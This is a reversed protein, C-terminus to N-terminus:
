FIIIRLGIKEGCEPPLLFGLLSLVTIIFSPIVLNFSYFLTRRRLELRVYLM